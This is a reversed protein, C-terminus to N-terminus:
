LELHGLFKRRLRNNPNALVAHLRQVRGVPNECVNDNREIAGSGPYNVLGSAKRGM